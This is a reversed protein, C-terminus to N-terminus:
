GAHIKVERGTLVQEGLVLRQVELLSLRMGVGDTRPAWCALETTRSRVHAYARTRAGRTALEQHGRHCWAGQEGATSVVESEKASSGAIVVLKDTGLVM